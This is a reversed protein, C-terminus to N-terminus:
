FQNMHRITEIDQLTPVWLEMLHLSFYGDLQCMKKYYIKEQILSIM